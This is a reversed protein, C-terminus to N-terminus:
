QFNYQTKKFTGRGYWACVHVRNQLEPFHSLVLISKEGESTWLNRSYDEGLHLELSMIRGLFCGTLRSSTLKGTKYVDAADVRLLKLLGKKVVSILAHFCDTLTSACSDHLKQEKQRERLSTFCWTPSPNEKSSLFFFFNCRWRMLLNFWVREVKKRYLNSSKQFMAKRQFLM